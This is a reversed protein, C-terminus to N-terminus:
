EGERGRNREQRENQSSGQGVGGGGMEHREGPRTERVGRKEDQRGGGEGGRTEDGRM